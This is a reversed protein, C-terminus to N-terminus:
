NDVIKLSSHWPEWLLIAIFVYKFIKLLIKIWRQDPHAKINLVVQGLGVLSIEKLDLGCLIKKLKSTYIYVYVFVYIHM